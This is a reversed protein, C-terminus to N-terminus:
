KYAQKEVAYSVKFLEFFKNELKKNKKRKIYKSIVWIKKDLAYTRSKLGKVYTSKQLEQTHLLNQCCVKILERLKKALKNAFCFRSCLNVDREFLVRPYYNYNLEFLIHGINANKANNYTLEAMPLVKGM